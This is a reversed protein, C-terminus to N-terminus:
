SSADKTPSVEKPTEKAGKATQKEAKKVEEQKEARAKKKSSAKSATLLDRETEEKSLEGKLILDEIENEVAAMEEKHQLLRDLAQEKKRQMDLAEDAEADQQFQDDIVDGTHSSKMSKSNKNRRTKQGSLQRVEEENPALEDINFKNLAKNGVLGNRRCEERTDFIDEFMDYHQQEKTSEIEDKDYFLNFEDEDGDDGDDEEQSDEGPEEQKTAVEEVTTKPKESAVGEGEPRQEDFGLNM